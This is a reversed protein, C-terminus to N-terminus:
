DDVHTGAADKVLPAEVLYHLKCYMSTWTREM